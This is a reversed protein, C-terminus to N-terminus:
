NGVQFSGSSTYFVTNGSMNYYAVAGVASGNRSFYTSQIGTKTESRSWDTILGVYPPAAVAGFLQVRLTSVMKTLSAGSIRKATWGASWSHDVFGINIKASGATAATVGAGTRQTQSYTWSQGNVLALQIDPRSEERSATVISPENEPSPGPSNAPTLYARVFELDVESLPDGVAYDRSLANARAQAENM